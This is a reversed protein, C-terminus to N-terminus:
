GRPLGALYRDYAAEASIQQTQAAFVASQRLLIETDLAQREADTAAKLRKEMSANLDAQARSFAQRAEFVRKGVLYATEFGASQDAPCSGAYHSGAQGVQLGNQPTCYLRIGVAWGERWPAEQVPLKHRACAERHQDIFSSPRGNMGDQQGLARWDVTQCEKEDLTACSTAAILIAACAGALLIRSLGRGAM